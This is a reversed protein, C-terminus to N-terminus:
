KQSEIAKLENIIRTLEFVEPEFYLQWSYEIITGPIDIHIESDENYDFMRKTLECSVLGCNALKLCWNGVDRGINVPSLQITKPWNSDEIEKQIEINNKGENKMLFLASSCMEADNMMEAVLLIREEEPTALRRETLLKATMFAIIKPGLSSSTSLCVKRYAEFLVEAKVEDEIIENLLTEISKLSLSGKNFETIKRLLESLFVEARRRSMKEVVSSKVHKLIEFATDILLSSIIEM